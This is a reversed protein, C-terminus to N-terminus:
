LVVYKQSYLCWNRYLNNMMLLSVLNLMLGSQLILITTGSDLYIPLSLSFEQYYSVNNYLSHIEERWIFNKGHWIWWWTFTMVGYSAKTLFDSSPHPVTRYSWGHDGLRRASTSFQRKAVPAVRALRQVSGFLSMIQRFDFAKLYCQILNTSVFYMHLLSSKKNM